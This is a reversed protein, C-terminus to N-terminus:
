GVALPASPGDATPPAEKRWDKRRREGRPRELIEARAEARPKTLRGYQKPRRKVQRPEVRDPRNGVLPSKLGELLQQGVERAAPPAATSLTQRYADLTQTTGTFSIQWPKLGHLAAAQCMIKRTLNYALVHVWIEKQVMEPTHCRLEEMGLYTKLSRILGEVEWRERYLGVIAEKRYQTADLLTTVVRVYQTRFGPTDVRTATIRVQLTQPLSAYTAEDLWEPCKPKEWVVIEDENGLAQGNGFAHKRRQHLHLVVEVGRQQLLLILFYSCYCRDAVLVDGRRLQELLERLLATEGTEKGQCPGYKVGLLLGSARSFMGVLRVQPFGAGKKQSTPQPYVQQNKATDPTTVVWGDLLLVRHGLWRWEQPLADELRVALGLSLDEVLGTPLRRRAKSYAGPNKSPRHCGLVTLLVVSRVVAATCAKSTSLVQHLFTWLTLSTTWVPSRPVATPANGLSVDQLPLAVPAAAAPPEGGAGVAVPLAAPAATTCAVADAAPSSCPAAHAAAALGPALPPTAAGGPVAAAPDATAATAAMGSPPPDWALGHRRFLEQCHEETLVDAFPLGEMQLFSQLITACSPTSPHSQSSSM